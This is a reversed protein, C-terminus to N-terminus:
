GVVMGPRTGGGIQRVDLVAVFGREHRQPGFLMIIERDEDGERGKGVLHELLDVIAVGDAIASAIAREAGLQPQFLQVGFADRGLDDVDAM